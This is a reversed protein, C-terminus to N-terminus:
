VPIELAGSVLHQLKAGDRRADKILYELPRSSHSKERERKRAHQTGAMERQPETQASQERQPLKARFAYNILRM